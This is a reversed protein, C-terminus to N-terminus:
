GRHGEETLRWIGDGTPEAKGESRLRSLVCAISGVSRGTESSMQRRSMPSIDLLLMVDEIAPAPIPNHGSVFRRPRGSGDYRSLQEGCGCGCAVTPNEEGPLRRHFGRTRHRLLHHAASEEIELNEPDNNRKNRDLHHVQEGPLLRRGYKAEAVLRHEYAYGRVDALHHGVGVRVLVYGNSAISRGGRWNSNLRGRQDSM